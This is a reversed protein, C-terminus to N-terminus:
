ERVWRVRKGLASAGRFRDQKCVPESEHDKDGEVGTAQKRSCKWKWHRAPLITPLHEFISLFHLLLYQSFSNKLISLEVFCFLM